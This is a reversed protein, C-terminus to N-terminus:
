LNSIEAVVFTSGGIFVLDNHSAEQKAVEIAQNVEEVVKGKLGVQQAEKLLLHAKKARPVKAQCFYYNAEKPLLSLVSHSDKDDVMGWVIHLKNHPIRLIQKLIM